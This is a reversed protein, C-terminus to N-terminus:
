NVVVMGGVSPNIHDHFGWHGKKDFVYRYVAGKGYPKFQDFTPLDTHQPHPTSAIWMPIDSENIFQVVSGVPVTIENPSFVKGSYRVLIVHKMGPMNPDMVMGSPEAETISKPLPEGTKVYRATMNGNSDVSPLDLDNFAQDNAYDDYIMVILQSNSIDAGGLNIKVNQHTGAKMPASIEVVQSLQKGDIKRVVLFGNKSLTASKIM